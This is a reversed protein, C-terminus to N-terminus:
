FGVGFTPGATCGTSAGTGATCATGPSTGATCYSPASGGATCDLTSPAQGDRCYAAEATGANSLRVARPTEYKTGTLETDM